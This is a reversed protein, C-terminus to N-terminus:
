ADTVVAGNPLVKVEDKGDDTSIVTGPDDSIKVTLLGLSTM